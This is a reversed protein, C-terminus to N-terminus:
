LQNLFSEIFTDNDIEVMCFDVPENIDQVDGPPSACSLPSDRGDISSTAIPVYNLLEKTGYDYFVFWFDSTPECKKALEKQGYNQFWEKFYVVFTTHSFLYNKYRRGYSLFKNGKDPKGLLGLHDKWFANEEETFDHAIKPYETKM